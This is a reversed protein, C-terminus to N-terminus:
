PAGQAGQPWKPGSPAGLDEPGAPREECPRIKEDFKHNKTLNQHIKTIKPPGMPGWPGLNQGLCQGFHWIKSWFDHFLGFNPSFIRGQSSRGAPGSSKPAGLPGLHDWTAGPAGLPGLPAGLTGRM